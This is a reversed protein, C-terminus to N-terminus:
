ILESAGDSMGSLNIGLSQFSTDDVDSIIADTDTVNVAGGDETFTTAFNIGAGNTGNLDVVPTDNDASVLVAGQSTNSTGGDGDTVVFDLVRAATSPNDSINHYAVQRVVEQAASASSNNNWSIVLPSGNAGGAFSGVKTGSVLVDTGSLTVNGGALISLQDSTTGGSSFTVTLAGGDFDGGDVDNIFTGADIISAPDNETYALLGVPLVITPADNTATITVTTSGTAQLAGGTGQSGSNGDDFTWDIQVSAPPADSSNAYTTQRLINDVDASTPTEGNADTFTLIPQSATGAGTAIIQGNKILNSGVATIGNGDIFSFIDDTNEGGNRVLTLSAGSYNGLGSNLADLEVDSIGVNADLVVAAGGETFAPSDNLSTFSPATNAEQIIKFAADQGSKSNGDKDLLDGSAYAGGSTVAGLYTKGGGNSTVQITYQTSDNLTTTGMDLSVWTESTSLSGSSVTDSGLIAGNWANRLTVTITQSSADSDKYLVLEIKNVDYTAGPSDYSFTQGWSQGSKVELAKDSMSAFSPEYSELVVDALLGQWEGAADQALLNGNEIQGQSYELEWDGGLSAHGTLDDSAAVDTLTLDSLSDILGQGVESEALSCGYILIDGTEAFANAWLAISLNNEELTYANLSTNGLEVSGDSGHSIIHIA